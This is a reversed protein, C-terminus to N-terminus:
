QFDGSEEEFTDEDADDTLKGDAQRHFPGALPPVLDSKKDAIDADTPDGNAPDLSSDAQVLAPSPRVTRGVQDILPRVIAAAIGSEEDATDDRPPTQPIISPKEDSAPNRTPPLTAKLTPPHRLYPKVARLSQFTPANRNVVNHVILEARDIQRVKALDSLAMSCTCHCFPAEYNIPMPRPLSPSISLPDM